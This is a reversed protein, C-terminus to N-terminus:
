EQLRSIIYLVNDLLKGTFYRTSIEEIANIFAFYDMQALNFKKLARMYIIDVDAPVIPNHVYDKIKAFIRRFKGSPIFLPNKIETYMCFLSRLDNFMECCMLFEYDGPLVKEYSNFNLIDLRQSKKMRMILLADEVVQAKVHHDLRSPLSQTVGPSIEVEYDTNLSPNANIELLWPKCDETLLVDIGIIQFCKIKKVRAVKLHSNFHNSLGSHIGVLTKAILVKIDAKITEVSYGAQELEAYLSELTQKSGNNPESIEDTHVFKSSRKNLSYNTLHMFANSINRNTPAEYDETCFRALGQDNLFACLPNVSTILVYLRLDFKKRNLLLPPHIYEQVVVEDWNHMRSNELERASSILYIGDGQCGATPKVIFYRKKKSMMSELKSYDEPLLFTKPSIDFYEPYYRYIMRLVEALPRKRAIYEMGPIRNILKKSSIELEEDRLALGYWILSGRTGSVETWGNKQIISQILDLAGRSNATNVEFNSSNNKEM